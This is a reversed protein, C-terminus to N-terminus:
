SDGSAPASYPLIYERGPLATVFSKDLLAVSAVHAHMGIRLGRDIPQISHARVPSSSGQLDAGCGVVTQVDPLFPGLEGSENQLRRPGRHPIVAGLSM